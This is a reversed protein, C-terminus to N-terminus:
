VYFMSNSLSSNAQEFFIHTDPAEAKRRSTNDDGAMARVMYRSHEGLDEAVSVFARNAAAALHAYLVPAPISVSRTCRQYCYCLALTFNEFEAASFMQEDFLVNYHAPRQM